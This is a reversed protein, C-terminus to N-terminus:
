DNSKYSDRAQKLNRLPALIHEVTVNSRNEDFNKESKINEQSLNKVENKATLISNNNSQDGKKRLSNFINVDLNRRKIVGPSTIQNNNLINLSGNPIMLETSQNNLEPVRQFGLNLETQKVARFPTLYIEHQASINDSKLSESENLLRDFINPNSKKIKM